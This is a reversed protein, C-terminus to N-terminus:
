KDSILLFTVKLRSINWLSDTKIRYLSETQVCLHFQMILKVVITKKKKKTWSLNKSELKGYIHDEM